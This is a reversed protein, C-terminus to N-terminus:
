RQPPCLQEGFREVAGLRRRPLEVARPRKQQRAPSLDPPPESQDLQVLVVKVIGAAGHRLEASQDVPMGADAIRAPEASRQGLEFRLSECAVRLGSICLRARSWGSM